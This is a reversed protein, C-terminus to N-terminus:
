VRECVSVKSAVVVSYRVRCRKILRHGKPSVGCLLPM